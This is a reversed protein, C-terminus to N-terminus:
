QNPIQRSMVAAFRSLSAERRALEGVRCFSVKQGTIEHVYFKHTSGDAEYTCQEQIKNKEM